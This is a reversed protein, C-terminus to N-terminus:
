DSNDQIKDKNEEKFKQYFKNLILEMRKIKIRALVQKWYEQSSGFTQTKLIM